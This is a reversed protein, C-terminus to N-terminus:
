SSFRRKRYLVYSPGSITLTSQVKFFVFERAATSKSITCDMEVSCFAPAMGPEYM